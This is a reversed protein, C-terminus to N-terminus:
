DNVCSNGFAPNLQSIVNITNGCTNIQTPAYILSGQGDTSGYPAPHSEHASAVGSAAM